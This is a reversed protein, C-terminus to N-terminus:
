VQMRHRRLFSVAPPSGSMISVRRPEPWRNVAVGHDESPGDRAEGEGERPDEENEERTEGQADIGEHIRGEIEVGHLLVSRVHAVDDIGRGVFQSSRKADHHAFRFVGEEPVSCAGFRPSRHDGGEPGDVSHRPQSVLQKRQRPAIDAIEPRGKLSHGKPVRCLPRPRRKGRVERLPLRERQGEGLRGLHQAGRFENIVEEAIHHFVGRLERGLAPAM